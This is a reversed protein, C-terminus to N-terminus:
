LNVDTAYNIHSWKLIANSVNAFLYKGLYNEMFFYSFFVRNKPGLGSVENQVNLFTLFFFVLAPGGFITKLFDSTVM